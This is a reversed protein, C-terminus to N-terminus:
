SDEPVRRDSYVDSFYVEGGNKLVRFCEKMVDEKNPCLNIVCNSVILDTSNDQINISKLDEIYGHLFEVNSQKYGFKEKHYDKYKNAISLQEETMDVGIVHGSEGVLKSLIYCDRGSGSGLDIATIGELASPIVLGCGYYHDLVDPHILEIADLIEKPMKENTCGCNTKLDKTGQLTKGYYEQVDQHSM